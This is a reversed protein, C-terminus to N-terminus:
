ADASIATDSGAPQRAALPMSTVGPTTLERWLLVCFCALLPALQLTARNAASFEAFSTAPFAFAIFLVGLGSAVVMALPALPPRVLRRAGLIALAVAAYWLLHWNGFFLYEEVLSHWPPQYDLHLSGGLLAPASRALALVVLAAAGFGFAVLKPGRRPFLAVVFGPALTPASVMGSIAVLPCALALLLALAADRADRHLVWRHLALAASTYVGALMLDADGALAAHTDLLPLSAVLYAGILAGLLSLGANRLSGYVALTLAILMCLWPWNMASDDWRGLAVCSWVQLLPVTSPNDPSADFYAATSGSLWIDAHVFPVIRGLEYWVRAKTAWQVSADWPYLPRWMVEAAISAFRLGLWALLLMWAWQQWRPPPPRVLVSIAHRVAAVSIRNRRMAGAFLAVIAVLLAAGISVRGFAVGAASLVHMWLTLALAGIFYGYGLRLAASGASRDGDGASSRPWDLALLLAIGLAWPLALGFAVALFDM